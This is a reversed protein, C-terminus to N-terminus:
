VTTYLTPTPPTGQKEIIESAYKKDEEKRRGVDLKFKQHTLQKLDNKSLRKSPPDKTRNM